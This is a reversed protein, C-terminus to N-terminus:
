IEDVRNHESETQSMTFTCICVFLKVTVAQVHPRTLAVAVDKLGVACCRISSPDRPVICVCVCSVSVFEAASSPVKLWSSFFSLLPIVFIARVGFSKVCMCNSFEESPFIRPFFVLGSDLFALPVLSAPLCSCRYIALMLHGTLTAKHKACKLILIYIKREARRHAGHVSKGDLEM